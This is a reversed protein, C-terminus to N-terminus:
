HCQSRIRRYRLGDRHRNTHHSQMQLHQYKKNFIDPWFCVSQQPCSDKRDVCHSATLVKNASVLVGSCSGILKQELFRENKCLLYAEGLTSFYNTQTNVIMATAQALSYHLDADSVETRSDEGYIVTEGSVTQITSDRHSGCSALIFFFGFALKKM